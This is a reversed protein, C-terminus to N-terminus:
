LRYEITKDLLMELVQLNPSGLNTENELLPDLKSLQEFRMPNLRFPFMAQTSLLM